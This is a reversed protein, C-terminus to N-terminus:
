GERVKFPYNIVSTLQGLSNLREYEMALYVAGALEEFGLRNRLGNKLADVGCERMADSVIVLDFQCDTHRDEIM